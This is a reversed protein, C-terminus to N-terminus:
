AEVFLTGNRPLYRTDSADDLDRVQATQMVTIFANSGLSMDASANRAFSLSRNHGLDHGYHTVEPRSLALTV